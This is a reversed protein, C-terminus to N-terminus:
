CTYMGVSFLVPRLRPYAIRALVGFVRVVPFLDVPSNSIALSLRTKGVGGPGTLTLLRQGDRLIRVSTAIERQRVVLETLMLSPFGSREPTRSHGSPPMALGNHVRQQRSGLSGMPLEESEGGSPSNGSASLEASQSM